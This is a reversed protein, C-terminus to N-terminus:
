GDSHLRARMAERIQLAALEAPAIIEDAGAARLKERHETRTLRAIVLIDKRLHKATLVAFANDADNEGCAIVCGAREIGARRLAAETTYDDVHVHYGEAELRKAEPETRVIVWLNERDQMQHLLEHLTSSSGCIITHGQMFKVKRDHFADLVDRLSRTSFYHFMQGLVGVLVGVSVLALIMNFIKGQTTQADKSSGIGTMILVVSYLADLYSLNPQELVAYLWGGGFIIVMLLLALGLGRTAVSIPSRDRM